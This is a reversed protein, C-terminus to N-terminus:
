FWLTTWVQFRLPVPKDGSVCLIKYLATGNYRPWNEWLYKCFAGWLEDTQVQRNLSQGITQMLKQM